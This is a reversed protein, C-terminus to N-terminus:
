IKTRIRYVKEPILGIIKPITVLQVNIKKSWLWVNKIQIEVVSEVM